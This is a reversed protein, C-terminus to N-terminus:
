ALCERLTVISRRIWAKVTGLPVRLRGAIEGHSLGAAYALILSERRAPELRQLCRRLASETALRDFADDHGAPEAEDMEDPDTIMERSTDRVMNLARHRVVAYLWAHASGLAPDFAAARRWVQVFADQVADEALDRRRLIRLAVGIMQPAEAEYLQHLAARDGGACARLLVGTDPVAAAPTIRDPM